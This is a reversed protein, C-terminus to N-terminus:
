CWCGCACARACRSSGLVRAVFRATPWIINEEPEWSNHEVGFGKWKILYDFADKGRKKCSRKSHYLIAEVEWELQGDELVIPPPSRRGKAGSLPVYAKLQSVHFTHHLRQMSHDSVKLGKAANDRM